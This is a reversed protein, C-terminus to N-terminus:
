AHGVADGARRGIRHQGPDSGFCNGQQPHIRGAGSFQGASIQQRDDCGSLDAASGCVTEFGVTRGM